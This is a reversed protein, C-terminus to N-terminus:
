LHRQDQDVPTDQAVASLTSVAVIPTLVLRLLWDHKIM